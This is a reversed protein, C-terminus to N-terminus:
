AHALRLSGKIELGCQSVAFRLRDRARGAKLVLLVESCGRGVM